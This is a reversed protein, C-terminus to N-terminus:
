PDVLTCPAHCRLTIRSELDVLRRGRIWVAIAKLADLGKKLNKCEVSITFQFWYKLAHGELLICCSSVPKVQTNLVICRGPTYSELIEFELVSSELLPDLIEWVYKKISAGLFATRIQECTSDAKMANLYRHCWAHCSNYTPLQPLDNLTTDSLLYLPQNHQIPVDLPQLPLYLKAKTQIGLGM